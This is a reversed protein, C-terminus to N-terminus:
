RVDSGGWSCSAGLRQVILLAERDELKTYRVWIPLREIEIMVM